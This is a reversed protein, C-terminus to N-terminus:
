IHLSSFPPKIEIYSHYAVIIFYMKKQFRLRNEYLWKKEVKFIFHINIIVHIIKWCFDMVKEFINRNEIISCLFEM